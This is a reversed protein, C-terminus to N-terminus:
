LPNNKISSFSRPYADPTNKEKRILVLNRIFDEELGLNYEFVDEISGGMIEITNQAEFIEDTVKASKYSIFCGGLKLFPLALESIQALNGVARATVVDFSERYSKRHSVDEARDNIVSLNKLGIHEAANKIFNTKKATSDLAFVTSSTLLIAEAVVPFGGGSGIDLIKYSKNNKLYRCFSVSDVFHKEWILEADKASVLNTHSNYERLYKEFVDFQALQKEYVEVGYNTLVSKLNESKIM